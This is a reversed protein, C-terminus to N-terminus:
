SVIVCHIVKLRCYQSVVVVWNITFLYVQAPVAKVFQPRSGIRVVDTILCTLDATPGPVGLLTIRWENTKAASICLHACATTATKPAVVKLGPTASRPMSSTRCGVAPELGLARAKRCGAQWGPPIITGHATEHSKCTSCM